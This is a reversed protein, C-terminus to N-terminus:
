NWHLPIMQLISRVCYLFLLNRIHSVLLFGQLHFLNFFNSKCHERITYYFYFIEFLVFCAAPVFKRHM